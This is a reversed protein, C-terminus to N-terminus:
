LSINQKRHSVQTNVSDLARTALEGHSPQLAEVLVRGFLSAAIAARDESLARGGTHLRTRRLRLWGEPALHRLAQTMGDLMPPAFVLDDVELDIAERLVLVGADHAPNRIHITQRNCLGLLLDIVFGADHHVPSCTLRTGGMPTGLRASLAALLAALQDGTWAAVSALAMADDRYLALQAGRVVRIPALVSPLADPSHDGDHQGGAFMIGAVDAIPAMALQQRLALSRAPTVPLYVFGGITSAVFDIVAQFGGAQSCLVAGPAVGREALAIRRAHASTWINGASMITEVGGELTQLVPTGSAKLLEKFLARM